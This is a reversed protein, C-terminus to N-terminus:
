KPIRPEFHFFFCKRPFIQVKLGIYDEELASCKKYREEVELGEAFYSKEIAEFYAETQSRGELLMEQGATVAGFKPVFLIRQISHGPLTTSEKMAEKFTHNPTNYSTYSKWSWNWNIFICEQM